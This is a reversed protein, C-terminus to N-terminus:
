LIIVNDSPDRKIFSVSNLGSRLGPVGVELSHLGTELDLTEGQVLAGMSEWPKLGGGINLTAGSRRIFGGPQLQLDVGGSYPLFNQAALLNAAYDSPPAEFTYAPAQWYTVDDVLISAYYVPFDLQFFAWVYLPDSTTAAQQRYFDANNIAEFAFDSFQVGLPTSFKAVWTGTMRGKNLALNEALWSPVEGNPAIVAYKYEDGSIVQSGDESYWKPAIGNNWSVNGSFYDSDDIGGDYYQVFNAFNALGIQQEGHVLEQAIWFDWIRRVTLRAGSISTVGGTSLLFSELPDPPLIEALEPGSVTVIQRSETNIGANLSRYEVSGDIARTASEVTVREVKLDLEPTLDVSTIDDSGLVFTKAKPLDRRSLNFKPNGTGSYDWWIVSDPVLRALEALAYAFSGDRFTTTPCDYCAAIEGIEIPVGVSIARQLLQIIHDRINGKPCRFQPREVMKTADPILDTLPTKELNWWPGEVTVSVSLVEAEWNSPIRTVVGCFQRSGGIFLEIRQGVEPIKSGSATILKPEIVFSLDDPAQSRFSLRGSAAVDSFALESAGFAKGEEGKITIASM